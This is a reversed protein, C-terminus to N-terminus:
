PRAARIRDARTRFPAGTGPRFVNAERDGQAEHSVKVEHRNLERRSHDLRDHGLIASRTKQDIGISHLVSNATHRLGHFTIWPLGVTAMLRRLRKTVATSDVPRGTDTTFILGHDNRWSDSAARQRAEQAALERRIADVALGTLGVLGDSAETKTHDKVRRAHVQGTVQAVGRKLDVDGHGPRLSL